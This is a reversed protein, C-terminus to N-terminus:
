SSSEIFIFVNLALLLIEAPILEIPSPTSRMEALGKGWFEDFDHSHPNRGWYEKLEDLPLNSTLPM